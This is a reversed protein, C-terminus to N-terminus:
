INGNNVGKLKVLELFTNPNSKFFTEIINCAGANSLMKKDTGISKSRRTARLNELFELFTPNVRLSATNKNAM